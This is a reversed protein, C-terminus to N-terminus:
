PSERRTQSRPQVAREPPELATTEPAEAPLEVAFRGDVFQRALKIPIQAPAVYIRGPQFVGDPGGALTIMRIRM